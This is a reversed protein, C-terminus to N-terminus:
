SDDNSPETRGARTEKRNDAARGTADHCIFKSPDGAARAGAQLWAELQQPARRELEDLYIQRRAVIRLRATVTCAKQLTVYSHRWQRCLESDGLAGVAPEDRALGASSTLDPLDTRNGGDASATTCQEDAPVVPTSREEDEASGLPSLFVRAAAPPSTAAVVAVLALTAFGASASYGALSVVALGSGLSLPITCRIAAGTSGAVPSSGGAVYGASGGTTNGVDVSFKLCGAVLATMVFLVADVAPPLLILAMGCGLVLLVGTTAKWMTRYTRM